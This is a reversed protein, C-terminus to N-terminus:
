LNISDMIEQSQNNILIIKGEEEVTNREFYWIYWNELQYEEIINAPLMIHIIHADNEYLKITRETGNKILGYILHEGYTQYRNLQEDNRVMDIPNWTIPEAKWGFLGEHATTVGFQNQDKILFFLADGDFLEGSPILHLNSEKVLIAEQPHAYSTSNEYLFWGVTIALLVLMYIVIPKNSFSEKKLGWHCIGFILGSTLFFSHFLMSEPIFLQFSGFRLGIFFTPIFFILMCGVPYLWGKYQDFKTDILYIIGLYIPFGIIFFAFGGYFLVFPLEGGLTQDWVLKLTITYALFGGIYSLLPSVIYLGFKKM